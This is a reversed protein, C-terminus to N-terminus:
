QSFLSDSALLNELDKISPVTITQQTSNLASLNILHYMLVVLCFVAIVQIIKCRVPLSFKFLSFYILLLIIISIYNITFLNYIISSLWYSEEPLQDFIYYTVVIVWFPIIRDIYKFIM